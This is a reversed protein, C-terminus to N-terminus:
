VEEPEQRYIAPEYLVNGSAGGTMSVDTMMSESEM